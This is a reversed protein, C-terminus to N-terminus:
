DLAMVLIRKPLPLRCSQVTRASDSSAKPRAGERADCSRARFPAAGGIPTTWPADAGSFGPSEIIGANDAFSTSIDTFTFGAARAPGSLSLIAAAATTLLLAKM